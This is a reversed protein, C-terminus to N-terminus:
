ATFMGDKLVSTLHELLHLNKLPSSAMLVIDAKNGPAIVGRDSFGCAAASNATGATIVDSPSLGAKTLLEMERIPMGADTRRFPFDNGLAIRGGIEHFYRVPEFLEPGIWISRTLVDLTPTLIVNERAMRELLRRYQQIPRTGNLVPQPKGNVIWRHPVHEITHVGANLATELGGFDEIHCRVILNLRRAENCIATATKADLTPWPKPNVGPEFALKIMTAGADALKRVQDCGHAPSTVVLGYGGHHVTLPYGDLPCLM